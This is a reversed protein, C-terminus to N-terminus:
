EGKENRLYNKYDNVVDTLSKNLELLRYLKEDYTGKICLEIINHQKAAREPTTAVFRDEAQLISGVPPYKDMFIATEAADLTVAEKGAQTQIVLISPGSWTKFEKDPTSRQFAEVIRGRKVVNTEGTFCEPKRNPLAKDIAEKLEEITKLFSSFIIVKEEPYDKLRSIVWDVKPNTSSIKLAQPCSCLQRERTLSDLTGQVDIDGVEYYKHLNYLAKSQAATPQLLIRQYEKRPLWPMVEERKRQVSIQSLIQAHQMALEKSKFGNISRYSTGLKWNKEVVYDYFEDIYKWYSTFIEPYLWRLISFVQFPKNPAPTGTLALKYKANRFAYVASTSASRRSQIRHAEDIIVISPMGHAAQKIEQICGQTRATAKLTDYSIVLVDKWMTHILEARQAPTKAKLLTLCNYDPAWRSWETEWVPIASPPCIILIKEKHDSVRIAYNIALPTKGTRQESFIGASKLTLLKKLDEQQYPRLTLMM